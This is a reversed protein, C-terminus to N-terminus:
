DLYGVARLQKETQLREEDSDGDPRRRAKATLSSRIARLDRLLLAETNGDDEIWTERGLEGQRYLRRDSPTVVLKIRGRVVAEQELRDPSSVYIAREAFDRTRGRLLPVLSAGSVEEFGAVGLLEALTPVLDVQSVPVDVARGGAVDPGAVLLPIRVLESQLSVGHLWHGQEGFSEGHDATVVVYTDEAHPSRALAKLLYGIREDVSHVEALYLLRLADKEPGTLRGIVSRLKHRGRRPAHVHGLGRYFEAPRPLEGIEPPEFEVPPRYPAHPDDFWHLALFPADAGDLFELLWLLERYARGRDVYGVAPDLERRIRASKAAEFPPLAFGRLAGGRAVVPNEVRGRVTYGSEALREALLPETRPVRYFKRIQENGPRAFVPPYEGTFIAVSSPLTWPAAAYAQRFRVGSRALACLNPTRDPATECDIADDRLADVVLLLVNPPSGAPEPGTGCATAGGLVLIAVLARLARSSRFVFEIPTLDELPSSM